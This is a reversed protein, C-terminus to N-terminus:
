REREKRYSMSASRMTAKMQREDNRVLRVVKWLTHQKLKEESRKCFRHLCKRTSVQKRAPKIRQAAKVLQWNWSSRALTRYVKSSRKRNARNANANIARSLTSMDITTCKNSHRLTANEKKKYKKKIIHMRKHNQPAYKFPQQLRKHQFIVYRSHMSALLRM